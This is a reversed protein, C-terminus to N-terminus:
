SIMLSRPAVRTKMQVREQEGLDLRESETLLVLDIEVARINAQEEPTEPQFSAPPTSNDYYTVSFRVVHPALPQSTDRGVDRVLTPVGAIERVRYTVEDIGVVAAGENQQYRKSLPRDLIVRRRSASIRAVEAFDISGLADYVAVSKGVSFIGTSNVQLLRNGNMDHTLYTTRADPNMRILVGGDDQPVISPFVPKMPSLGVGARALDRQIQMVALRATQRTAGSEGFDEYSAQAKYLMLFLGGLLMVSIAMGVLIELLGFGRVGRGAPEPAM